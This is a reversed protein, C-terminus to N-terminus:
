ATVGQWQNSQGCNGCEDALYEMDTGCGGCEYERADAPDDAFELPTAGSGTDTEQNDLGHVTQGGNSGDSEPPESPPDASRERTDKDWDGPYSGQAGHEGTSMRIHNNIHDKESDCYPCVGGHEDDLGQLAM